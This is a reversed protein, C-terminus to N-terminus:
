LKHRESALEDQRVARLQRYFEWLNHFGRRRNRNSGRFIIVEIGIDRCIRCKCQDWPRDNLVKRYREVPVKATFELGYKVVADLTQEIDIRRDAYLRLATLSAKEMDRLEQQNKKGALIQEKFLRNEDASPVRISTYWERDLLYNSRADKFARIMPSTSDFSEIEYKVFESISHAKTFGFLHLRVTSSVAERVAELIHHIQPAKLLVMGGIGIYDYGMAVLRRSADRYSEPSWGQAVGVPQFTVNHNRCYSLFDEALRLTLAYRRKWEEPILNPLHHQESYGLIVHDISVGHTFGCQEYYRVMDPVSYPPVDDKLYSFAGCDGMIAGGRSPNYRLFSRAGERKFRMSQATTYKGDQNGDGLVARSVLIGDYPPIDFYEHPYVDDRQVRRDPSYEDKTFDFGPDIQDLCDAFLFKMAM